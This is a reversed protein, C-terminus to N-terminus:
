SNKELWQFHNKMAAKAAKDMQKEAARYSLIFQKGTESLRYGKKNGGVKVVLNEGLSEELKKLRGWARRYSMGLEKAASSLSGLEDILELLVAAGSGFLMEGDGELWFKYQITKQM